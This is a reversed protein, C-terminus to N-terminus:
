FKKLPLSVIFITGKGPESEAHIEGKNLEVLEKCLILGLGTGKERSSGIKKHDTDIRFLKALDEKNIGIGSDKISIYLFKSQYGVNIDIHGNDPTFKVANSLLNRIITETSARDAYAIDDKGCSVDISLQKKDAQVRFLDVEKNILACIDINGPMYSIKGTQTMSWQLLNEILDQSMNASKSIIQVTQKKEDEDLDNYREKLMGSVSVLTGFPNRLDHSLISFFKNKTAILEELEDNKDSLIKNTKAKFRYRNYIFVAIIVFFVGAIILILIELKNKQIVADQAEIDAKQIKIQNEKKETEYKTQLENIQKHLNENLLSDKVATYFIHYCLASDYNGVSRFYDTYNLYLSSLLENLNLDVAMQRCSDLYLKALNPKKQLLYLDALNNMTSAVGSLNNIKKRYLLAKLYYDLATNYQGKEKNINGINNYAFGAGEDNEIDLYIRLSKNYCNLASDEKNIAEYVSGLNILTVAVGEQDKLQEKINLSRRYFEISKNFRGMKRNILGINNLSYAIGGPNNLEEEIELSKQFYIYGKEYLGQINYVVGINNLAMSMGEKNGIKEYVVYARKYFKLAQDFESWIDYIIGITIYCDSQKKLNSLKKFVDLAKQYYILASDSNNQYYYAEAINYFADAYESEDANMSLVKKAYNMSKDISSDLIAYSLENYIHPIQEPGASKLQQQLSDVHFSANGEESLILFSAVIILLVKNM